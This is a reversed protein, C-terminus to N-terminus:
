RRGEATPIGWTLGAQGEALAKALAPGKQYDIELAREHLSLAKCDLCWARGEVREVPVHDKECRYCKGREFAPALGAARLYQVEYRLYRIEDRQSMQVDILERLGDVIERLVDENM